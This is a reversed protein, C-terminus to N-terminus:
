TNLEKCLEDYMKMINKWHSGKWYLKGCRKCVWFDSAFLFEKLENIEVKSLEGGCVTCRTNNLQPQLNSEKFVKILKDKLSLNPNIFITAIGRSKAKKFLEEDSTLLIRDNEQSLRLLAEDSPIKLFLTEYGLIRLWKSVNGLMSDVVFVTSV